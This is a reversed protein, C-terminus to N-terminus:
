CGNKRKVKAKSNHEWFYKEALTFRVLKPNNEILNLIISEETSEALLSMDIGVLSATKGDPNGCYSTRSIVLKM